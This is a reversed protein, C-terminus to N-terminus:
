RILSTVGSPPITNSGNIPDPDVPTAAMLFPNTNRPMSILSSYKLIESARRTSAWLSFSALSQFLGFLLCLLGLLRPHQLDCHNDGVTHNVYGVIDAILELVFSVAEHQINVLTWDLPGGQLIFPLAKVFDQYDYAASELAKPYNRYVYAREAPANKTETFRIPHFIQNERKLDDFLIVRISEASRLVTDAYREFQKVTM